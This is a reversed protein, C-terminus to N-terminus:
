SQSGDASQSVYRNDVQVRLLYPYVEYCYVADLLRSVRSYRLNVDQDRQTEHDSSNTKSCRGCSASEAATVSLSTPKLWDSSWWQPRSVRWVGVAVQSVDFLLNSARRHRTFQGCSSEAVCCSRTTVSLSTCMQEEGASLTNRSNQELSTFLVLTEPGLGLTLSWYLVLFVLGSQSWFRRSWLWCGDSILVCDASSNTLLIM